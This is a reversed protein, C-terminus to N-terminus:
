VKKVRCQVYPIGWNVGPYYKLRSELSSYDSIAKTYAHGTITLYIGIGSTIHWLWHLGPLGTNLILECFIKDSFWIAISIVLLVAATKKLRHTILPVGVFYMHLNNKM